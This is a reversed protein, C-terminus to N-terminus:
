EEALGKRLKLLTRAYRKRVADASPLGLRTAIADFALDEEWRLRVIERTTEDLEGVRQAVRAAMENADAVVEPPAGPDTPDAIIDLQGELRDGDRGLTKRLKSNVKNRSKIAIWSMFAPEGRDEFRPLERLVDAFVSQSLDMSDYRRRLPPLLTRRITALVYRGYRSYLRERAEPDGQQAARILASFTGTESDDEMAITAEPL